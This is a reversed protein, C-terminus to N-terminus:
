AYSKYHDWDSPCAVSEVLFDNFQYIHDFDNWKSFTYKNETLLLSDAEIFSQSDDTECEARLSTEVESWLTVSLKRRAVLNFFASLLLISILIQLYIFREQYRKKGCANILTVFLLAAAMFAFAALLTPLAAHVDEGLDKLIVSERAEFALQAHLVLFISHFLFFLTFSCYIFMVFLESGEERLHQVGTSVRKMQTNKQYKQLKLKDEREEM